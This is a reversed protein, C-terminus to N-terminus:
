CDDRTCFQKLVRFLTCFDIKILQIIRFLVLLYAIDLRFYQTSLSAFLHTVRHHCNTMDAYIIVILLKKINEIDAILKNNLELYTVTQIRRYDTIEWLIEERIELLLM